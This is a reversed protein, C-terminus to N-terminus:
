QVDCLSRSSKLKLEIKFKSINLRGRWGSEEEWVRFDSGSSEYVRIGRSQFSNYPETCYQTQGYTVYAKRLIGSLARMFLILVRTNGDM